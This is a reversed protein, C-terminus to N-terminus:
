FQDGPAFGVPDLEVVDLGAFGRLVSVHLAEVAGEAGFDEVGVEEAGEGFDAVEDVVPHDGIVFFARVGSEAVERWSEEALLM